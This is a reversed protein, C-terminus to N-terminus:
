DQKVANDANKLGQALVYLERSEARSAEPKRVSVKQFHQRLLNRFSEFEGGQFIKVLFVGNGALHQVAFESALEALEYARALDANKIGSFNPAMDSLVLDVPRNELRAALDEAVEVSLFDGQILEVGDLPDIPLLDLGIIRGRGKLKRAAYQCWGGPAAGLDVIIQGPRILQDRRDIEELKFVARSRWGADQAKKVYPDKRQRALWRGSSSPMLRPGTSAM